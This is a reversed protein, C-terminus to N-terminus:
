EAIWSITYFNNEPILIPALEIKKFRGNIGLEQCALDFHCMAIGLDIRNMSRPETRFFHIRTETGTEELLIKWPQCNRSSPALRIMEFPIGFRGASKQTLPMNWSDKFFLTEYEKRSHQKTMLSMTKSVLSPKTTATGVPSVIPLMENNKLEVRDAFGGKNFTGGLWCTGLGLQTCYLIVKEFTYGLTEEALPSRDCIVVLFAQPNKIIGYTGLRQNGNSNKNKLYEIRIKADFPHKVYRIYDQLQGETAHNMTRKGYSRISRRVKMAEINSKKM